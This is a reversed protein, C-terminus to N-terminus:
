VLREHVGRAGATAGGTRAGSVGRAARAGAAGAGVRRSPSRTGGGGCGRACGLSKRRADRGRRAVPNCCCPRQPSHWARSLSLPCRAGARTAHGDGSYMSNLCGKVDYRRDACDHGLRGSGCQRTRINFSGNM